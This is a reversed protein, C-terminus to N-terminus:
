RVGAYVLNADALCRDLRFFNYKQCCTTTGQTYDENCLDILNNLLFNDCDLRDIGPTGYCIDHNNCIPAFFSAAGAGGFSDILTQVFQTSGSLGGAYDSLSNPM